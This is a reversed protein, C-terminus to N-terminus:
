RQAPFQIGSSPASQSHASVGRDIWHSAGEALFCNTTFGPQSIFPHEKWKVSKMAELDEEGAFNQFADIKNFFLESYIVFRNACRYYQNAREAKYDELVNINPFIGLALMAENLETDSLDAKKVLEPTETLNGSVRQQANVDQICREADLDTGSYIWTSATQIYNCLEPRLSLRAVNHFCRSRYLSVVNGSTNIPAVGPSVTYSNQSILYCPKESALAGALNFYQQELENPKQEFLNYIRKDPNSFLGCGSLLLSTVLLLFVAFRM